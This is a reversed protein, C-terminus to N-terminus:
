QDNVERLWTVPNAVRAKIQDKLRTALRLLRDDTTLFLDVNASEACALHLADMEHFGLIELEEARSVEPEGIKVMTAVLGLQTLTRLRLEANPTRSIEFAMVESGVWTWEGSAIRGLIMVIAESELRIRPQSQDDFPRNLCCVDLYIKWPDSFGAM